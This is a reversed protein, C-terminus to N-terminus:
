IRLFPKDFGVNGPFKPVDTWQMFHMEKFFFVSKTLRPFYFTTKQFKEVLTDFHVHVVNEIKNYAGREGRDEGRAM